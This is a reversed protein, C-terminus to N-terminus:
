GSAASARRSRTRSGVQARTGRWCELAPGSSLGVKRGTHVLRSQWAQFPLFFPSFGGRGAKRAPGPPSRLACGAELGGAAMQRARRGRGGGTLAASLSREGRRGAGGRGGAPRSPRPEGAATQRPGPATKPPPPLPATQRRWLAGRHRLAPPLPTSQLRPRQPGWSGQM